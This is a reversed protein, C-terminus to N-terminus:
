SKVVKQIIEAPQSSRALQYIGALILAGGAIVELVRLWNHPNAVWLATAGLTKAAEVLLNETIVPAHGEGGASATPAVKKGRPLFLAYAGSKYVSWAKWGQTLFIAHAAKANAVTDNLMTQKDYGHSSNIQWLGWDETGNSNKHVADTIGDSEALAIAVATAIDNQDTWGGALALNALQQDTATAM